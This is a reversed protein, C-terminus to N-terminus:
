NTTNAHKWEMPVPKGSWSGLVALGFGDKRDREADCICQMWMRDIWNGIASEDDNLKLFIVTGAAALRRTPKPRQREFDWGSVVQMRPLAVAKLVPTVGERLELLWEPRYGAAFDGPTLLIVRCHKDRMIASRVTDPCAPAEVRSRRWSVLRREGGLPAIGPQLDEDTMVALALRQRAKLTFELGRTQFLAGERATMAEALISVHTRQEPMPGGHGLSALDVESEFPQELWQALSEWYWFRPLRKGGVPKRPDPHVPGVLALDDPLNSEAGAPSALPVLPKRVAQTEVAPDLDLLLADAPAPLLWRGVDHQEDMEVLLPGKVGIAKVRKLCQEDGKPFAGNADLGARTRVAGTTTSPFPFTLSAARAGPNPGFPRGDRVILPDRPEILWTPM